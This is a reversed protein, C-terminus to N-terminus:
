CSATLTLSGFLVKYSGQRKERRHRSYSRCTYRVSAPSSGVGLGGGEGPAYFPHCFLVKKKKKTEQLWVYTGTKYPSSMHHYLPTRLPYRLRRSVYMKESMSTFSYASHYCKALRACTGLSEHEKKERNGLCCGGVLAGAHTGAVKFFM